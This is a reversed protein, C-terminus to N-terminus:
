GIECRWIARIEELCREVSRVGCDHSRAIEDNTFGEMRMLAIARYSPPLAGFRERLEEMMVLALAPDSEGDCFQALPDDSGGDDLDSAAVVRGGGRKLRRDDRKRNAAKRTTITVLLRWLDDRNSLWGFRGAEAGRFFCALAELAVDEGDVPGRPTDRLLGQALRTLREFYRGWLRQASQEDRGARVDDIWNTVSSEDNCGNGTVQRGGGLRPGVCYGDRRSNWEATCTMKPANAPVTWFFADIRAPSSRLRHKEQHTGRTIWIALV